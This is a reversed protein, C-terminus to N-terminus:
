DNREGCKAYKKNQENLGCLRSRWIATLRLLADMDFAPPYREIHIYLDMGDWTPFVVAQRLSRRHPMTQLFNLLHPLSVPDLDLLLIRKKLRM